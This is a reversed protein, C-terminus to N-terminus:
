TTNGEHGRRSANYKRWSERSAERRKHAQAYWGQWARLPIRGSRDVLGVDCMAQCIANDFPILAPWANEVTVRRGAKWSEAIVAVYAMFAIPTSGNHLRNLKRFKPDNIIDTSMDMVAFGDDRSM